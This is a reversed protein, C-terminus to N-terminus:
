LIWYNLSKQGLLNREILDLLGKDLKEKSREYGTAKLHARLEPYTFEIQNIDEGRADLNAKIKNTLGIAGQHIAAQAKGMGKTRSDRKGDDCGINLSPVIVCSSFPKGDEDEGLYVTKLTFRIPAVDDSDKQKLGVLTFDKDDSSSDKVPALQIETDLAGKLVSSGRGRGDAQLGTHHFIIVSVDCDRRIRDCAAVFKTMDETSNENGTGFNRNLTDIMVLRIGTNSNIDAIVRNLEEPESLPVASTTKFMSNDPLSQEHHKQWARARRGIGNDGEGCVYYIGGQQKIQHGHWDKGLAVCHGMDLAVFSKGSGPPGFVMIVSDQPLVDKIVWKPPASSLQNFDISRPRDQNSTVTHLQTKATDIGEVSILDNWDSGQNSQFVPLIVSTNTVSAAAKEAYVKGPNGETGQDNDGAVVLHALPYRSRLAKIAPTLNSTDFAVYVPEGTMEHVSVGTAYGEVIYARLKPEPGIRHTLGNKQAGELYRKDGNSKIKQYSRIEGEISVMPVILDDKQAYIGYARIGKAALYQHDTALQLNNITEKAVEAQDDQRQVKYVKAKEAQANRETKILEWDTPALDSESQSCWAISSGERWDGYHGYGIEKNNHTRYICFYYWGVKEKSDNRKMRIPKDSTEAINNAAYGQRNLEDLFATYPNHSVSPVSSLHKSTVPPNDLITM